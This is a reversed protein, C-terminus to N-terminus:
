LLFYQLVLMGALICDYVIYYKWGISSLGIPNVFQNFFLALYICFQTICYGKARLSFPLVEIPYASQLGTFGFDYAAFFFFLFAVQAYGTASHGTNAYSGALGTIIVYCILMGGTSIFFLPRRGLRNASLAGAIAWPYNWINICVNIIAQTAPDTVGASNLIPSLYYTVIGNGAWQCMFGVLICIILRHRNGKTQFFAAWSGQSQATRELEIAEQIELFELQVLPDHEEGNAHYKALVQLAEDKRGKSILWRPSEPIFFLTSFHAKPERRLL